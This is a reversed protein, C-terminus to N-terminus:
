SLTQLPHTKTQLTLSSILAWGNNAASHGVLVKLTLGPTKRSVQTWPDGVLGSFGANWCPAKICAM